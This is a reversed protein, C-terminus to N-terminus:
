QDTLGIRIFCGGSSGEQASLDTGAGDKSEDIASTHGNDIDVAYEIENSLNSVSTHDAILYAAVTFFYRIGPEFAHVLTTQCHYRENDSWCEDIGAITPYEYDYGADDETRMYLHFAIDGNPGSSYGTSGADWQWVFTITESGSADAPHFVAAIILVIAIHELLNTNTM